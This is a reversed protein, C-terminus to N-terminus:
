RGVFQRWGNAMRQLAANNATPDYVPLPQSSGRYFYRLLYDAMARSVVDPARLDDVLGSIQAALPVEGNQAMLALRKLRNLRTPDNVSAGVTRWLGAYRPDRPSFTLVRELVMARVMPVPRNLLRLANTGALSVQWRALLELAPVDPNRGNALVAIQENVGRAVDKSTSIQGLVVPKIPISHIPQNVWRPMRKPQPMDQITQNDVVLMAADTAKRDNIQVTGGNVTIEVGLSSQQLVATAKTEFTLSAVIQNADRLRVVTGIPIDVLAVSGFQLELDASAGSMGGALRMTTDGDMVLQGGSDLEAEARCLPLTQLTEPGSRDPVIGAPENESHLPLTTTSGESVGSWSLGRQSASEAPSPPSQQALLGTVRTWRLEGIAALAPPALVNEPAMPVVRLPPQSDAPDVVISTSPVDAGPVDLGRVDLSPNRQAANRPGVMPDNQEPAFPPTTSGDDALRTSPSDDPVVERHDQPSPLADTDTEPPIIEPSSGTRTLESENPLRAGDRQRWVFFVAVAAAVALLAVAIKRTSHSARRRRAPSAKEPAVSIFETKPLSEPLAVRDQGPTDILNSESANGALVSCMTMLQASLSDSLSPMADVSEEACRTAAIIESLVRRDSMAARYLEESEGLSLKGDVFAAVRELPVILSTSQGSHAISPDDLVRQVIEGLPRVEGTEALSERLHRNIAALLTRRNM